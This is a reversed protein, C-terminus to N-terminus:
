TRLMVRIQKSGLERSNSFNYTGTGWGILNKMILSLYIKHAKMLTTKKILQKTLSHRMNPQQLIRSSLFSQNTKLLILM